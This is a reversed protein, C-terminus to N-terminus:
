KSEDKNVEWDLTLSMAAPLREWVANLHKPLQELWLFFFAWGSFLFVPSDSFHRYGNGRKGPKKIM